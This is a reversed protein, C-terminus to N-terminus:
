EEGRLLEALSPGDHSVPDDRRPIVNGDADHRASVYVLWIVQHAAGILRDPHEIRFEDFASQYSQEETKPIIHWTKLRSGSATELATVRRELGGSSM